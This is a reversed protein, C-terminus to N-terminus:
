IIVQNPLCNKKPTKYFCVWPNFMIIDVMVLLHLLLNPLNLKWGKILIIIISKCDLKCLHKSSCCQIIFTSFVLTKLSCAILILQTGVQNGQCHSQRQHRVDRDFWCLPWEKAIEQRLSTEHHHRKRRIICQCCGRGTWRNNPFMTILLWYIFSFRNM